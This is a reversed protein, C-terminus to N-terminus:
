THIYYEHVHQLQLVPPGDRHRDVQRNRLLLSSKSITQNSPDTVSLHLFSDIYTHKCTNTQNNDMNTHLCTNSSCLHKNTPRQKAQKNKSTTILSCPCVWRRKCVRLEKYIIFFPEHSSSEQKGYLTLLSQCALFVLDFWVNKFNEGRKFKEVCECNIITVKSWTLTLRIWANDFFISTLVLKISTKKRDLKGRPWHQERKRRRNWGWNTM